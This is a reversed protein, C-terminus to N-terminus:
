TSSPAGMAPTGLSLATECRIPTRRTTNRVHSLLTVPLILLLNSCPTCVEDSDYEEEDDGREASGFGLHRQRYWEYWHYVRLEFTSMTHLENSKKREEFYKMVVIVHRRLGAFDRVAVLGMVILLVTIFATRTTTTDFFMNIFFIASLPIM